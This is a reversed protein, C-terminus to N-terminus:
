VLNREFPAIGRAGSVRLDFITAEDVRAIKALLALDAFQKKLEHQMLPHDFWDIAEIETKLKDDPRLYRPASTWQLYESICDRSVISCWAAEDSAASRVANWAHIVCSVAYQAAFTFRSTSDASNPGLTILTEESFEMPVSDGRAVLWLSDIAARLRGPDANPDDLSFAQYMPFLRESCSAGFACRKVISVGDLLTLIQTTVRIQPHSTNDIKV